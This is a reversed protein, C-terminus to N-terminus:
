GLGNFLTWLTRERQDLVLLQPLFVPGVLYSIFVCNCCSSLVTTRGARSLTGCGRVEQELSPWRPCRPTFGRMPVPRPESGPAAAVVSKLVACSM